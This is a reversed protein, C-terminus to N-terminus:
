KQGFECKQLINNGHSSGIVECKAAQLLLNSHYRLNTSQYYTRRLRLLVRMKM